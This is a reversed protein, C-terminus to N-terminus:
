KKGRYPMVWNNNKLISYRNKVSNFPRNTIECFEKFKKPGMEILLETEQKTWKSNKITNDCIKIKNPILNFNNDQFIYESFMNAMIGNFHIQKINNNKSIDFIKVIDVINNTELFEKLDLSFKKNGALLIRDYNNKTSLCGDGFFYGKLFYHMETIKLNPLRYTLTKRETINYRLLDECIQDSPITLMVSNTKKLKSINRVGECIENNIINLAEIDKISINFILLKQGTKQKRICGDAAIFGVIILREKYKEMNEISFYDHKITATLKTKYIM